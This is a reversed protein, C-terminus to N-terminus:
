LAVACERPVRLCLLFALRRQGRAGVGYGLAIGRVPFSVIGDGLAVTLPRSAGGRNGLEDRQLMLGLPQPRLERLPLGGM